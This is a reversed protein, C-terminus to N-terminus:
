SGRERPQYPAVALLRFDEAVRALEEGPEMSLRARVRWGDPHWDALEILLRIHGDHTASITLDNELSEFQRTGKWGRWDAAMDGFFRALQELDPGYDSGLHM